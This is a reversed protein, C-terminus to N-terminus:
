VMQTTWGSTTPLCQILTSNPIQRVPAITLLECLVLFLRGHSIILPIDSEQLAYNLALVVRRKCEERTEIGFASVYANDQEELKEIAYMQSSPAGQLAGWYREKLGEIVTLKAEPIFSHIIQATEKARLLPSTCIRKFAFPQVVSGLSTAELRGEQNLEIDLQGQCIEKVNWDTKGHRAFYFPKKLLQM